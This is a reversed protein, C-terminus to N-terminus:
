QWDPLSANKVTRIDIWGEPLPRRPPGVPLADEAAGSAVTEASTSDTEGRMTFQIDDQENDIGVAKLLAPMRIYDELLEKKGWENDSPVIDRLKDMATEMPVDEIKLVEKGLLHKLEPAAAVVYLGEPFVIFKAPLAYRTDSAKKPYADTHGDKALAIIRFVQSYFTSYTLPSKNVVSEKLQIWKQKPNAHFPAPHITEIASILSDLDEEVEPRPLTSDTIISKTRDTTSIRSDFGGTLLSLLILPLLYCTIILKLDM